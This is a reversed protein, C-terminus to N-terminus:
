NGRPFGLRYQSIMQDSFQVKEQASNHVRKEERRIRLTWLTLLTNDPLPNKVFCNQAQLPVVRNSHAFLGVFDADFM